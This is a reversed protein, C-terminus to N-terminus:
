QLNKCRHCRQMSNLQVRWTSRVWRSFTIKRSMRRNERDSYQEILASIVLCGKYMYCHSYRSIIM